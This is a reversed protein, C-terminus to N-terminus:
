KRITKILRFSSNEIGKKSSYNNSLCYIWFKKNTNLNKILQLIKSYNGQNRFEKFIFFYYLLIKNKINIKKEIESVNWISGQYMWGTTVIKKKYYLVLLSKNNKFRNKKESNLFKIINKDKISKLKKFTFFKYNRYKLRRKNKIGEYLYITRFHSLILNKFNKLNKIM